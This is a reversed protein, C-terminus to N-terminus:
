RRLGSIIPRSFASNGWLVEPRLEIRFETVLFKGSVTLLMENALDGIADARKSHQVVKDLPGIRASVRWCSESATQPANPSWSETQARRHGSRSPPRGSGGETAGRRAQAFSHAAGGAHRSM